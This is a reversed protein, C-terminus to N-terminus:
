LELRGSREVYVQDPGNVMIESVTEDKLLPEIPGFGLIEAAIAEFLRLREVRTLVIGESELVNAYAEEVTRRVEDPNTLDMRPDLEAVLRNQVRAKMEAFSDQRQALRPRTSVPAAVPEAQVARTQPTAFLANTQTPLAVTAPRSFLEGTGISGTAASPASAPQTTAPNLISTEANLRRLLSM